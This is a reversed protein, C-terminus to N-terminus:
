KKKPPDDAKEPVRRRIEELLEELELRSLVSEPSPEAQGEGLGMRVLEDRMSQWFSAMGQELTMAEDGWWEIAIKGLSSCALKDRDRMAVMGTAWTYIADRGMGLREALTADTYGFHQMFEALKRAYLPDRKTLPRRKPGPTRRPREGKAMVLEM